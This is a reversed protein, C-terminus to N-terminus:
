YLEELTKRLAEIYQLGWKEDPEMYNGEGWENWSKLFVICDKESKSNLTKFVNQLHKKFLAPTSNNLILGKGSSRPSHDWNPIIMPIVDRKSDFNSDTLFPIAESYDYTNIPKNALFNKIQHLRTYVKNHKSYIDDKREISIYSFGKEKAALYDENRKIRGIFCIGNPYGNEKALQDWVNLFQEPVSLADFIYFIPKGEICIYRKDRFANLAYHFHNVYDEEGPYTQEMLLKDQGNKDWTKSYWSHNAWGLCFPFDPNGSELVEDFVRSLLRQGNGFWYHWYCFGEIGAQKALIAQKERTEPVRLDYFGLDRPIRPQYHGRFLPKAKAVNTWETFGPEWWEDNEPTPYFQPLYFAIVRPKNM